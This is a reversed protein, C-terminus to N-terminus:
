RKGEPPPGKKEAPLILRLLEPVLAAFRPRQEATCLAKLDEFHAFTVAAKQAQISGLVRELSDRRAPLAPGDLLHFYQASTEAYTAELRTVAQHHERKLRDFQQRQAADLGLTEVILRDARRPGEHPPRHPRNLVMFGLTALNLLALLGVAWLLLTEKKM